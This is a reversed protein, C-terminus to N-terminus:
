KDLDSNTIQWVEQEKESGIRPINLEKVATGILGFDNKAVATVVVDRSRYLKPFSISTKEGPELPKDLHELFIPYPTSNVIKLKLEHNYSYVGEIKVPAQTACGAFFLLTVVMIMLYKKM